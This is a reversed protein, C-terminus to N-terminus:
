DDIFTFSLNTVTDYVNIELFICNKVYILDIINLFMCYAFVPTVKPSALRKCNSQWIMDSTKRSLDPLVALVLGSYPHKKLSERHVPQLLSTCKPMDLQWLMHANYTPTHPHFKRHLNCTEAPDKKWISIHPKSDSSWFAFLELAIVSFPYLTHHIVDMWTVPSPKVYSM